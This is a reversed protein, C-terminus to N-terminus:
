RRKLTRFDTKQIKDAEHTVALADRSVGARVSKVFGMERKVDGKVVKRMRSRKMNGVM